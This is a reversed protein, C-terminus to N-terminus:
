LNLVKTFTLKKESSYAGNYTYGDMTINKISLIDKLQHDILYRAMMGRALKTYMSISKLHGNKEQLFDITIVDLTPNLLKHYEKSALNIILNDKLYHNVDLSWYTYLHEISQDQMELRYKSIGDNPRVLGYLGSMILLSQNMYALSDKSMSSVDLGKFAQGDYLSIALYTDTGFNKYYNFVDQAIQLSVNMDEKIQHISLKKLAKVLTLTKKPFCMSLSQHQANKSFTKAPSLLIKM